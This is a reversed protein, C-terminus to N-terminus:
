FSFPLNPSSSNVSDAPPIWPEELPKVNSPQSVAENAASQSTPLLTQGNRTQSDRSDPCSVVM